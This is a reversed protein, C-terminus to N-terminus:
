STVGYCEAPRAFRFAVDIRLLLEAILKEREPLGRIQWRVGGDGAHRKDWVPAFANYDGPPLATQAQGLTGRMFAFAHSVSDSADAELLDTDGVPRGNMKAVKAASRGRKRLRQRGARDGVLDEVTNVDSRGRVERGIRSVLAPHDSLGVEILEDTAAVDFHPAFVGIRQVMPQDLADFLEV